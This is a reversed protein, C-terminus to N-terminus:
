RKNGGAPLSKTSVTGGAIAGLRKKEDDSWQYDADTLANRAAIKIEAANASGSYSLVEWLTIANGKVRQLLLKCVRQRVEEDKPPDLHLWVLLNMYQPSEFPLEQSQGSLVKENEKWGGTKALDYEPKFPAMEAAKKQLENKRWAEMEATTSLAAVPKLTDLIGIVFERPLVLVPVLVTLLMALCGCFWPLIFRALPGAQPHPLIERTGWGATPFSEVVAKPSVGNGTKVAALKQTAEELKEHQQACKMALEWWCEPLVAKFLDAGEMDATLCESLHDLAEREAKSQWTWATKPKRLRVDWFDREDQVASCVVRGAALWRRADALAEQHEEGALPLAANYLQEARSFRTVALTAALALMVDVACANRSAHSAVIADALRSLRHTEGRAAWRSAVMCTVNVEGSGMEIVLDPIRALEALQDEDQEFMEAILVSGAAAWEPKSFAQCCFADFHGPVAVKGAVARLLGKASNRLEEPLETAILAEIRMMTEPDIASSSAADLAQSSSM